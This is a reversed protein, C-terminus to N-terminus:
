CVKIIRFLYLDTFWVLHFVLFVLSVGAFEFILSHSWFIIKVGCILMM